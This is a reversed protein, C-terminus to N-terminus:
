GAACGRIPWILSYAAWTVMARLGDLVIALNLFVSNRVDSLYDVNIKLFINLVTFLTLHNSHASIYIIFTIKYTVHKCVDDDKNVIYWEYKPM